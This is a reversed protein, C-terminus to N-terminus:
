AAMGEQKSPKPGWDSQWYGDHNFIALRRRLEGDIEDAWDDYEADALWKPLGLMFQGRDKHKDPCALYARAGAIIREPEAGARVAAKFADLSPQKRSRRILDREKWIKWLDDFAAFRPERGRSGALATLPLPAAVDVSRLSTSTTKKYPDPSNEKTPDAQVPALTASPANTAGSATTNTETPPVIQQKQPAKQVPAVTAGTDSTRRHLDEEREINPMAHLASVILAYEFTYGNKCDRKGVLRLIGEAVFAKMHTQVTRESVESDRALTPVSAYIGSGDNNAQDALTRLLCRRAMGGCIKRSVVGSLEASM